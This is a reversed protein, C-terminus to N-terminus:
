RYIHVLDNKDIKWKNFHGKKQLESCAGKIMKRIEKIDQETNLNIAHCLTLLGYPVGGGKHTELFRYLAKAVDGKIKARQALDISTTLNVGYLTLFYPNLYVIIKTSEPQQDVNSLIAGTISRIVKKNDGDKYLDTDIITKTLRKLCEAISMYQTTGRSVGMIECLESYNTQIKENKYKKALFLIALLVSEDQISLKPGSVKIAGWRNKIIFDKYLSREKMETRSMPFFPSTRAIETPMFALKLQEPKGTTKIIHNKVAEVAEAIHQYGKAKFEDWSVLDQFAVFWKQYHGKESQPLTQLILDFEKKEM